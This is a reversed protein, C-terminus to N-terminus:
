ATAPPSPNELFTDPHEYGPACCCLFVLDEKGTNRITHQSGPPIAIADGPGVLRTEDALTMEAVGTLIYYIEETIAHHHPTTAQGPSLRAEALSQNRVASNRHAMIERITSGDVTTFPVADDRNLVDMQSSDLILSFPGHGGFDVARDDPWSESAKRTSSPRRYPDPM